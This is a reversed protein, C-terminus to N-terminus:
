WLICLILIRVMLNNSKFLAGYTAVESEANKEAVKLPAKESFTGEFLGILNISLAKKNDKAAKQAVKYATAHLKNSILWRMSEPLVRYFFIFLIPPISLWYILNRWHREHYAIIGILGGGVSYFYNLLVASLERKNKDIMEIVLIFASFYIGTTGAANLFTFVLYMLYSSSVAQGIGNLSMFAVSIIFIKRRGYYDALFGFLISGIMVGAFNASGVFALKWQNETCALESPWQSPSFTFNILKLGNRTIEASNKLVLNM